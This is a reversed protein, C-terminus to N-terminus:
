CNPAHCTPSAAVQQEGGEEEEERGEKDRQTESVVHQLAVCVHARQRDTQRDATEAVAEIATTTTKAKVQWECNLVTFPLDFRHAVLTSCM